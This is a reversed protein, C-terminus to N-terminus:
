EPARLSNVVQELQEPSETKILVEVLPPCVDTAQSLPQSAGEHNLVLVDGYQELISALRPDVEKSSPLEPSPM